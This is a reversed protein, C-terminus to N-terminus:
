LSSQQSSQLWITALNNVGVLCVTALTPATTTSESQLCPIPLKQKDISISIYMIFIPTSQYVELMFELVLVHVMATLPCGDTEKSGRDEGVRRRNM